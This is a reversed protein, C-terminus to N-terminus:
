SGVEPERALKGLVGNVFRGSEETSLEKAAEVAEDIVAGEPVDPRYTLEYVGVRLVARDVAAMRDVTWDQAAANLIADLEDRRGAIGDILERTFGDDKDRLLSPADVGKIDAEYLVEVARRRARTRTVM